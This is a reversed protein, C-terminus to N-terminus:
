ELSRRFSERRRKRRKSREKKMQNKFPDNEYKGNYMDYDVHKKDMMKKVDDDKMTKDFLNGFINKPPPLKDAMEVKNVRSPRENRGDVSTRELFPNPLRQQQVPKRANRNPVKFQPLKRSLATKRANGPNVRQRAQRKFNNVAAFHEICKPTIGKM